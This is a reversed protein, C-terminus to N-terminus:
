FAKLRYYNRVLKEDADLLISAAISIDHTRLLELVYELKKGVHSGARVLLVVDRAEKLVEVSKPCLLLDPVPVAKIGMNQEMRVCIDKPNIDEGAPCVIVKKEEGAEGPNLIIGLNTYINEDEEIGVCKIGYRRLITAPLWISDDSLEQLLVIVVAAFCSLIASLIFARLPRVDPIIEHAKEDTDILVISKLQENSTAFWETMVTDVANKMAEVVQEDKYTVIITLVHIDSAIDLTLMEAIESDSMAFINVDGPVNGQLELQEYIKEMFMDSRIFTNWTTSNIYYDGSVAPEIVYDVKYTSEAKYGASERFTVNKLYYWGGFFLTGLLTAIVIQYSRKILRLMTLRLDFPEKGYDGYLM